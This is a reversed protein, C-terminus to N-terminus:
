LHKLKRFTELVEHVFRIQINIHVAMFCLTACDLRLSPKHLKLWRLGMNLVRGDMCYWEQVEVSQQAIESMKIRPRMNLM